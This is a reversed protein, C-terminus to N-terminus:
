YRPPLEKTSVTTVRGSVEAQQLAWIYADPRFNFVEAPEGRRNGPESGGSRLMLLRNAIVPGNITLLGSCVTSRIDTTARHCTRIVGNTVTTGSRVGPAVLWADVRSVGENITINRAMIVVQPIQAASTFPGAAYEINGTITVDSDPANIVIWTGAPISSADINIPGSGSYIGKAKGNLTGSGISGTAPATRFRAAVDPISTGHTYCGNGSTCPAASNGNNAFTLLNRNPAGGGVHGSGSAMDTVRGTPAIAYEAWSGYTGTSNTSNITLVRASAPSPATIGALSRGVFLDGGLINVKPTKGVILCSLNSHVWNDTSQNYQRVSMFFCIRTGVAYSDINTSGAHDRVDNRPYMGYTGTAPAALAGCEVEGTVFDCGRTGSGTVRSGGTKQPIAAGPAYRVKTLQYDVNPRSDTPGDNRVSGTVTLASTPDEIVRGDTVDKVTPVLNYNYTPCTRVINIPVREVGIEGSTFTVNWWDDRQQQRRAIDVYITEQAVGTAYHAASCRAARSVDLNGYLKGGATTWAFNGSAPMWGRYFQNDSMASLWSTSIDIAYMNRNGSWTTRCANVAGRISVRISDVNTGVGVVESYYDGEDNSLWVMGKAFPGDRGNWNDATHCFNWANGYHLRSNTAMSASASDSLLVNVGLLVAVVLLVKLMFTGKTINLISSQLREM